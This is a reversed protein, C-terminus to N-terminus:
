RRKCSCPGLIIQGDKVDVATQGTDGCTGCKFSRPAAKGNTHKGRLGDLVKFLSKGGAEEFGKQIADTSVGANLAARIHKAAKAQGMPASQQRKTWVEALLDAPDEDGRAAGSPPPTPPAAAGRGRKTPVTPVTPVTRVGDSRRGDPHGNSTRRTGAARERRKRSADEKRREILKGAYDYWDHLYLTKGGVGGRKEDIWGSEILANYWVTADGNWNSAAKISLADLPREAVSLRGNLCYDLAYLWLNELKARVLDQDQAGVLTALHMLKPHNRLSQHLELWAM